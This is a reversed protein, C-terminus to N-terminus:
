LRLVVPTLCPAPIRNWHPSPQFSVLALSSAMIMFIIFSEFYKHEVLKYMYCRFVWWKQGLKTKDVVDCCPCKRICCKPCCEDPYKVFVVNVENIEPGEMNDLQKEFIHSEDKSYSFNSGSIMSAESSISGTSGKSGGSLSRSLKSARSASQSLKATSSSAKSAQRTPLDSSQLRFSTKMEFILTRRRNRAHDAYNWVSSVLVFSVSMWRPLSRSLFYFKAMLLALM